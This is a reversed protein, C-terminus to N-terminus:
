AKQPTARRQGPQIAAENQPNNLPSSFPHASLLEGIVCNRIVFDSSNEVRVGNHNDFHAALATGVIDLQLLTTNQSGWVVVSGTDAAYSDGELIRFGDWVVHNRNLAGILPGPRTLIFRSTSDPVTTWPVQLTATQSAGDYSGAGVYPQGPLQQQAIKRHQGAGTGEVIRIAYDAYTDNTSSASTDLQVTSATAARVVGSYAVSPRITVNGVAKLM